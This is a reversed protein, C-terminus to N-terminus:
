GSCAARRLVAASPRVARERDIVGFAVDYGLLWEYNDVGTWHFFGRLDVGRALADRAIDLGREIYRAREADDDTGLGYESILLPTGPLEAHLRDLVLRLGDADIAYGLPSRPADDPHAVVRGDRVGM